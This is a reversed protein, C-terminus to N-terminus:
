LTWLTALSFDKEMMIEKQINGADDPKIDKPFQDTLKTTGNRFINKKMKYPRIGSQKQATFKYQTTPDPVVSFPLKYRLTISKKRMNSTEGTGDSTIFDFSFYTKGNEPDIYTAVKEIEIGTVSQLISGEPVYIRVAQKNEGQGLISLIHPPFDKFGFPRLIARIEQFTKESWTHERTITLQDLVEGNTEFITDHTVEQNMFADSKNGSFSSLIIALYDENEGTERMSGDIGLEEFFKQIDKDRSFGLINRQTMERLLIQQVKEANAKQFLRKQFVPAFKKLIKKPDELGETKSEIMYTFVHRYNEATLPHTLGEIEIPGTVDLLEGLLTHNVAFVTKPISQFDGGTVSIEELTIKKVAQEKAQAESHESREKEYLELAKEGSIRFDGHYNADRFFWRDTLKKIERPPEIVAKFGDDIDYVDEINMEEMIGQAMRVRLYSGIFGGSPRIEDSNQLLVIFSSDGVTDADAGIIKLLGPLMKTTRDIKKDIEKLTVFGKFFKQQWQAPILSQDIKEFTTIANKINESIIPVLKSADQIKKMVSPTTKLLEVSRREGQAAIFIDGFGSFNEALQAAIKGAESLYGGADVMGTVTKLKKDTRFFWIENMIKEFDNKAQEFYNKAFVTKGQAIKESGALLDQYADTASFSVRSFLKQGKSFTGAINIFFVIMAALLGIGLLSATFRKKKEPVFLSEEKKGVVDILLGPDTLRGQVNKKRLNITHGPIHGAIREVSLAQSDDPSNRLKVSKGDHDRTIDEM